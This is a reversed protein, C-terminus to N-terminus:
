TREDLADRLLAEARWRVGQECVEVKRVVRLAREIAGPDGEAFLLIEDVAEARDLAAWVSGLAYSAIWRVSQDPAERRVPAPNAM